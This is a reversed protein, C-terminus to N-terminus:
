NQRATVVLIGRPRVVDFFRKNLYYRIKHPNTGIDEQIMERILLDRYNRYFAAKLCAKASHQAVEESQSNQLFESCHEYRAAVQDIFCGYFTELSDDQASVMSCCLVMGVVMCIIRATKM